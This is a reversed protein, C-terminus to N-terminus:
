GPLCKLRNGFDPLQAWVIPNNLLNSQRVLLIKCGAALVPFNHGRWLWSKGSNITKCLFLDLFILVGM